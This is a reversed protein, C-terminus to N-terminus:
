AAAGSAPQFFQGWAAHAQSFKAYGIEPQEPDFTKGNARIPQNPALDMHWLTCYDDIYVIDFQQVADMDISCLYQWQAVPWNGPATWKTKGKKSLLPAILPSMRVVRSLVSPGLGANGGTIVHAIFTAADPPDDVIATALKMIDAPLSSDLRRAEFPSPPAGVDALPLCVSGTGLSLLRIDEPLYGLVIAEIVAVVAPNNCGTVGGDWYRDPSLPLVAPADFYNVPANTSAHVAGALSIIAPQGEGWDPTGATASRHVPSGSPGIVGNTAGALPNDGTKPLLREIAPLKASASYKPGVHLLGRLVDNGPDKTPSFISRRKNEDMFYQLIEELTLNEVLGALVLSGGSNAAVLDFDKLIQHGTISKSYLKILTRVEILAWAGGGDLSLIRFEM